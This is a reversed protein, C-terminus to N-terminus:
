EGEKNPQKETHNLFVRDLLENVPRFECQSHVVKNQAHVCLDKYYQMALFCDDLLSVLYKAQDLTIHPIKEKLQSKIRELDNM